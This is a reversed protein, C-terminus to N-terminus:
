HRGLWELVADLFGVPNELHLLHPGDLVAFEFTPNRQAYQRVLATGVAQDDRGSLFLTPVALSPLRQAQQMGALARAAAAFGQPTTALLAQRVTEVVEPRHALFPPTFWRALTGEAMSALGKRQAQDARQLWMAAAAGDVELRANAVTLSHMRQPHRHALAVGICGGLSLGVFHSQVIGLEDWLRLVDDAIADVTGVGDERRDQGHGRLDYALVRYRNTLGPLLADWVQRNSGIPHSLTLWPAAAPGAFQYHFNSAM